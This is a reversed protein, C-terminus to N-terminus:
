RGWECAGCLPALSDKALYYGCKECRAPPTPYNAMEMIRGQPSFWTDELSDQKAAGGAGGIGRECAKLRADWASPARRSSVPQAVPLTGNAYAVQARDWVSNRPRAPQTQRNM